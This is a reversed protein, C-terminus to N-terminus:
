GTKRSKPLLRKMNKTTPAHESSGRSKAGSAVQSRDYLVGDRRLENGWAMLHPTLKGRAERVYVKDGDDITGAKYLRRTEDGGLRQMATAGLKRFQKFPLEIGARHRLALYSDGILDCRPAKRYLPRGRDSLLALDDDGDAFRGSKAMERRLLAATEPWLVHMAEFDNQQATKSRKRVITTYEEQAVVENRRLSGIDIQYHGCNLALYIYLRQRDTANALLTKLQDADYEAIKVPNPNRFRKKFVDHIDEPHRYNVNAQRHAWNLMRQIETWYNNATRKSISNKGDGVRRFIDDRLREIEAYQLTDILTLPNVSVLGAKLNRCENTYSKENIGQGGGIGIKGKRYDLYMERMQEVRLRPTQNEVTDGPEGGMGEMRGTERDRSFVTVKGQELADETMEAHHREVVADIEQPSLHPLGFDAGINKAGPWVANKGRKKKIERWVHKIAAAKAVAANEDRGLYFFARQRTGSASRRYGVRTYYQGWAHMRITPIGINKLTARAPETVANKGPRGDGKRHSPKSGNPPLMQVNLLLARIKSETL